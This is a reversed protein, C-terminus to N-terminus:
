ARHLSTLDPIRSNSTIPQIGIDTVRSPLPAPSPCPHLRTYATPTGLPAESSMLPLKHPRRNASQQRIASSTQDPHRGDDAALPLHTWLHVRRRVANKFHPNEPVFYLFYCITSLM